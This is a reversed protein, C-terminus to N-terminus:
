PNGTEKAAPPTDMVALSVVPHARGQIWLLIAEGRNLRALEAVSPKWASIMWGDRDWIELTHCLGDTEHNWNAPAGLRRSPNELPQSKM